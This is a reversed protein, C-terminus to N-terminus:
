LIQSALAHMVSMLNLVCAFHAHCVRCCELGRCKQMQYLDPSNCERATSFAEPAPSLTPLPKRSEYKQPQEHLLEQNQEQQSLSFAVGTTAGPRQTTSPSSGSHPYYLLPKSLMKRVGPSRSGSANKSGATTPQVHFDSPDVEADATAASGSGRHRESTTSEPAPELVSTTAKSASFGSITASGGGAEANAATGRGVEDEPLVLMPDHEVRMSSLRPDLSTLEEHIALLEAVSATESAELGSSSTGKSPYTQEVAPDHASSSRRNPWASEDETATTLSSINNIKM